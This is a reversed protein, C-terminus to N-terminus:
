IKCIRNYGQQLIQCDESSKPYLLEVYLLPNKPFECLLKNSINLIFSLLEDQASTLGQRHGLDNLIRSFLFMITIKYFMGELDYKYWIRYFFEVIYNLEDDDLKSYEELVKCYNRIIEDSIFEKQPGDSLQTMGEYHDLTELYVHVASLLAKREKFTLIEINELLDLIRNTYIENDYIYKLISLAMERNSGNLAHKITSLMSKLCKFAYQLIRNSNEKPESRVLLSFTWEFSEVTIAPLVQSIDSIKNISSLLVEDKLYLSSESTLRIRFNLIYDVLYLYYVIIKNINPNDLKAKIEKQITSILVEFASSTIIKLSILKMCKRTQDDLVVRRKKNVHETLNEQGNEVKERLGISDLRPVEQWTQRIHIKDQKNKIQEMLKVGKSSAEMKPDTFLDDSSNHELIYYFIEFILTHWIAENKDSAMIIIPECLNENFFQVILDFHAKLKENNSLNGSGPADKIALLNRYILLLLHIFKRDDNNKDVLKLHWQLMNRINRIISINLIFLDKYASNIKLFSLDYLNKGMPYIKTMRTLLEVCIRSTEKQSNNEFRSNLLILPFLRSEMFELKYLTIFCEKEKYVIKNIEQLSPIINIGPIFLNYSGGDRTFVKTSEGLSNVHRIIISNWYENENKVRQFRKQRERKSFTDKNVNNILNVPTTRKM